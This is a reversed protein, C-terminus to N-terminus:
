QTARELYAVATGSYTFNAGYLFLPATYSTQLVFVTRYNSSYNWIANTCGIMTPRQAGNSDSEYYWFNPASRANAGLIATGKATVLATLQACTMGPTSAYTRAVEATEYQVRTMRWAVLTTQISAFILVGLAPAILAGEVFAAGREWRGSRRHTSNKRSQLM